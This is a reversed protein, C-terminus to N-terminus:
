ENTNQDKDVGARASLDTISWPSRSEPRLGTVRGLGSVRSHPVLDGGEHTGSRAGIDASLASPPAVFGRQRGVACEAELELSARGRCIEFADHSNTGLVDVVEGLGRDGDPEIVVPQHIHSIAREVAAVQGIRPIGSNPVADGDGCVDIRLGIVHLDSGAALGPLLEDLVGRKSVVGVDATLQARPCDPRVRGSRELDRGRCPHGGGPTTRGRRAEGQTM